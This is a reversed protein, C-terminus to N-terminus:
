IINRNCEVFTCTRLSAFVMTLSISLPILFLAWNCAADALQVFSNDLKFSKPQGFKKMQHLIGLQLFDTKSPNLRPKNAAMSSQVKQFATSLVQGSSDCSISIQTDDAYFNYELAHKDLLTSLTITYVSSSWACFGTFCQM